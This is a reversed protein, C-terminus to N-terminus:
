NILGDFVENMKAVTKQPSFYEEVRRQGERGMAARKGDENLLLIVKQAIAQTDKKEVLFGTVGDVIIEQPGGCRTAVVPKAMVMAEAVVRSFAERESPQVFIDVDQLITPVDSRSGTFIVKDAIGIEQAYKKIDNLTLDHLYLADGVIVFKVDNYAQAVMKMAELFDKHGKLPVVHAIMGVIKTDAAIGYELRFAGHEKAQRRFGEADIGNYVVTIKKNYNGKLSDAIATSVTVMETCDFVCFNKLKKTPIFDQVITIVPINMKQAAKVAYPTVRYCNSCILSIDNQRCFDELKRITLLNHLWFKWKRWGRLKMLKFSIGYRSAEEALGDPEQSIFFGQYRSDLNKWISALYMEAGGLFTVHNLFLIKTKAAM